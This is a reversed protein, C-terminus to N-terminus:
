GTQSCKSGKPLVPRVNQYAPSISALPVVHVFARQTPRIWNGPFLTISFGQCVELPNGILCEADISFDLVQSYLLHGM